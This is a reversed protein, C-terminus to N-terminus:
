IELTLHSSGSDSGEGFACTSLLRGRKGGLGAYPLFTRSEM